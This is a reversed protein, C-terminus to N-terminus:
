GVRVRASVILQSWYRRASWVCTISLSAQRAPCNVPPVSRLSSIRNLPM